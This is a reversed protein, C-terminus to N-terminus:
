GRDGPWRSRRRRSMRTSGTRALRPSSGPPSKWASIRRILIDELDQLTDADLKRTTFIQTIGSGIQSATRGLGARLRQWWSLRPVEAPLSEAAAPSAPASGGGFLRSFFGPKKNDDSM